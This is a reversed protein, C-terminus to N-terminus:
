RPEDASLEDALLRAILRTQELRQKALQRSQQFHFGDNLRADWYGYADRKALADRLATAGLGQQALQMAQLAVGTVGFDDLNVADALLRAEETMPTKQPTEHLLRTARDLLNPDVSEGFRSVLLEAAQEARDNLSTRGLRTAPPAPNLAAPLQFAFCALELADLDPDSTLLGLGLLTLVRHWLRNADDLGRATAARAAGGLAQCLQRRLSGDLPM